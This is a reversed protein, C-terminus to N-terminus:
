PDDQQLSHWREERKSPQTINWGHEVPRVNANNAREPEDVDQQESCERQLRQKRHVRGEARGARGRRLRAGERAGRERLLSRQSEPAGSVAGGTAGM